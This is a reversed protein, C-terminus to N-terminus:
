KKQQAMKEQGVHGNHRMLSPQHGEKSRGGHLVAWALGLYGALLAFAAGLAVRELLREKQQDVNTQINM